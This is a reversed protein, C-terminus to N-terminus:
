ILIPHHLCSLFKRLSPSHASLTAFLCPHLARQRIQFPRARTLSIRPNWDMRIAIRFSSQSISFHIRACQEVIYIYMYRDYLLHIHSPTRSSAFQALTLYLSAPTFPCFFFFFLDIFFSISSFIFRHRSSSFFCIKNM